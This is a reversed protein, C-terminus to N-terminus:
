TLIFFLSQLITSNGSSPRDSYRTCYIWAPWLGQGNVSSQIPLNNNANKEDSIAETGAISASSSVSVAGNISGGTVSSLNSALSELSGSRSLSSM